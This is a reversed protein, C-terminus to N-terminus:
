SGEQACAKLGERYTPYALRVGLERKIKDNRVRRAEEYFSRAMPSMTSEAQTYALLPPPEMGLLWAGYAVVDASSAPEDDCVNYITSASPKTMAAELSAAIDAVHIRCFVHGPKEIRKATGARLQDIASRGPGYIGPLRFIQVPVGISDGLQTWAREAALRAKARESHPAPPTTEDAWAGQTDGYVGTTSLYGIWQLSDALVAIDARHHLLAPDGQQGPPISLLLHTTGSLARQAQEMPADGTFIFGEYDAAQLAAVSQATRATGAIKWGHTTMRRALFGASYGLGFCFLRPTLDTKSKGNM